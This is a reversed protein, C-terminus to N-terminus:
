RKVAVFWQFWCFLIELSLWFVNLAVIRNMSTGRNFNIVKIMVLPISKCFVTPPKPPLKDVWYM